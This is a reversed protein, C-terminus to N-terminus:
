TRAYIKISEPNLWRGLAQITADSAGASRLATALWVRWSHPSLLKARTVGVM